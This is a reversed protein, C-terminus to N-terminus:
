LPNVEVKAQDLLADFASNTWGADNGDVGTRYKELFTTPDTYDGIWSARAVHYEKQNLRERFASLEIPELAIDVGLEQRWQYVIMQGVPGHAAGTNFNLRLPPFGAGGPYGAEALLQRAREPDYALGQPSPYD